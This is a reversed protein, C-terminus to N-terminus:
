ADPRITFARGFSDSEDTTNRVDNRAAMGDGQFSADDLAAEGEGLIEVSEVRAAAPGRRCKEIM